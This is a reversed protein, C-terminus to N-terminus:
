KAGAMSPKKRELLKKLSGLVQNWNAESHDRSEETESGDQTITLRSGTGSKSVEYEINAYNEPKDELGSFSSWFRYKLVKEPLIDIIKGRDVYEKGEWTGKFVIDSGKKWDSVADTGFMYEKIQAPDVLAKWVVSVPAEIDVSTKAILDKSMIAGGEFHEHILIISVAM